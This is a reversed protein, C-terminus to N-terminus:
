SHVLDEPSWGQRFTAKVFRNVEPCNSVRMRKSDWQIKKGAIVALNGLLVMETLPVSYEFNSGAGHPNGARIADTWERYPNGDPIRPITKKPLLPHMERMKTEPIIRPSLCYDTTDLITAKEGVMYYGSTPLKRDAELEKPRAPLKGGDYWTLTLPADQRPRSIRLYYNVL